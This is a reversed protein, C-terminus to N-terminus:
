FEQIIVVNVAAFGIHSIIMLLVTFPDHQNLYMTLISSMLYSIITLILVYGIVSSLDYLVMFYINAIYLEYMNIMKKNNIEHSQILPVWSRMLVFIYFLDVNANNFVSILQISISVLSSCILVQDARLTM